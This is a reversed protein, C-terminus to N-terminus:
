RRLLSSLIAPLQEPYQAHMTVFEDLMVNEIGPVHPIARCAAYDTWARKERIMMERDQRMYGNIFRGSVLRRLAQWEDEDRCSVPAGLIVVDCVMDAAIHAEPELSESIRKLEVLCWYVVIAGLSFGILSVPRPRQFRLREQCELGADLSGSAILSKALTVGVQKARRVTTDFIDALEDNIRDIGQGVLSAPNSLAFGFKITNMTAVAAKAMANQFDAGMKLLLETEWRVVYVQGSTWPYRPSVFWPTFMDTRNSLFGNVCVVAHPSTSPGLAELSVEHVRGFKTYLRTYTGHFIILFYIWFFLIFGQRTALYKGLIEDAPTEKMFKCVHRLFPLTQHYRQNCFFKDDLNLIMEATASVGMGGALGAFTGFILSSGVITGVSGPLKDLADGPHIATSVLKSPDITPFFAAAKERAKENNAKKREQPIPQCEEETLTRMGEALEISTPVGGELPPVEPVAIGSDAIILRELLGFVHRGNFLGDGIAWLSELMACRITAGYRPHTRMVENMLAAVPLLPHLQAAACNNRYESAVRSLSMATSSLRVEEDLLSLQAEQLCLCEGIDQVSAAVREQVQFGDEEHLAARRTQCIASTTFVEALSRRIGPLLEQLVGELGSTGIARDVAVLGEVHEEALKSRLPVLKRYFGELSSPRALPDQIFEVDFDVECGSRRTGEEEEEEAEDEEGEEINLETGHLIARQRGTRAFSPIDGDAGYAIEFLDELDFSVTALKLDKAIMYEDYITIEMTEQQLYWFTFRVNQFTILLENDADGLPRKRYAALAASGQPPPVPAPEYQHSGKILGGCDFVLKRQPQVFVFEEVDEWLPKFATPTQQADRLSGGLSVVAYPNLKSSLFGSGALNLRLSHLSVRLQACQNRVEELRSNRGAGSTSPECRITVHLEQRFDVDSDVGPATGLHGNRVLPFAARLESFRFLVSIPLYTIGLVHHSGLSDAGNRIEFILHTEIGTYRLTTHWDFELVRGPATIPSVLEAHGLMVAVRPMQYAVPGFDIGTVRHVHIHVRHDAAKDLVLGQGAFLRKNLAFANTKTSEELHSFSTSSTAVGRSASARRLAVGPDM